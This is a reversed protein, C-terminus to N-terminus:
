NPEKTKANSLVEDGKPDVDLYKFWNYWVAAPYVNKVRKNWVYFQTRAQHGFTPADEILIQRMQAYLAAREPSPPMVRAQEYLKDYEPNKYNFNNSGPAENPGYFLQLFNEADPYDAGWALGFAQAKKRKLKDALEPFSSVKVALQVGIRRLQRTFMEAMETGAGGRSINYELPPLGKGGPYGAKALLAKAKDINPGRYPSTVGAKYGSLGPPIPGDYLVTTNNYFADNLEETDIALSIAQRLYRGKDGAPLGFVPDEMNVGRYIFDLLPLNYNQMGEAIMSERLTQDANFISDHYDAPVRAIDLDKVRFKLWLPQTQELIHLVIGDLFPIKQGAAKALGLARAEASAEKPYRADRYNPNKEFILKTGRQWSKLVFPGSGVPNNGFELGYHEACERPVVAAYGMALVFLFQPFPRLLKIRLTHKDLVEFGEVPAEWPFPENPRRADVQDNFADFGAVRDQFVWWGGPRLTNDAMRKMSYFVDEAVIERGKGGSDDFCPNDHFKVGARLKITYTTQDESIEPMSAALLPELEFPRVLYKYSFLTEYIQAQALGAYATSSRVPDLSGVSAGIPYHLYKKGLEWQATKKCGAIAPALAAALLAVAV